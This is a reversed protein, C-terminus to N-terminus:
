RAGRARAYAHASPAYGDAHARRADGARGCPRHDARRAACGREDARAASADVGARGPCADGACASLCGERPQRDAPAARRKGVTRDSRQSIDGDDAPGAPRYGSCRCACGLAPIPCRWPKPHSCCSALAIAASVVTGCYCLRRDPAVSEIAGKDRDNNGTRGGQIM